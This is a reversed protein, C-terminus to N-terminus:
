EEAGLIEDICKNYGVAFMDLYQRETGNMIYTNTPTNNGFNEALKQPMPKLRADKFEIGVNEAYENALLLGTLRYDKDFETDDPVDILLIAKM